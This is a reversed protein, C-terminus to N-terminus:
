PLPAGAYAMARTFEWEAAAEFGPEGLGIFWRRMGDPNSCIWQALSGPVFGPYEARHKACWGPTAHWLREPSVEVRGWLEGCTPCVYATNRWWSRTSAQGSALISDHLYLIM